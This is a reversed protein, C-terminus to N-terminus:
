VTVEKSEMLMTDNQPLEQAKFAQDKKNIRLYGNFIM